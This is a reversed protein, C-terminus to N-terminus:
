IAGGPIEEPLAPRVTPRGPLPGKPSENITNEKINPRPIGGHSKGSGRFQKVTGDPNFTTYKGNPGTQEIVTHSSGEAAADPDCHTSRKNMYNMDEAKHVTTPTLVEQPPATVSGPVDVQSFSPSFDYSTELIFSTPSAYSSGGVYNVELSRTSINGKDCLYGATLGAVAAVCVMTTTSVSLGITVGAATGWSIIAPIALMWIMRGDPDVYRFPSNKLYNYRNEGETLLVPDLTTWRMESPDYYRRGFHVFGTEADYRKSACRWPSIRKGAELEQGYASYSYKEAPEGSATDVLAVINGQQDHLPAYIKGELEVAVTAGVDAYSRKGLVKIQTLEGVANAAGLELEGMYFYRECLANDASQKLIRRHFADYRYEYTQHPLEVKILRNLADYFYNTDGKAIVNGNKDYRYVDQLEHVANFERVTGNVV